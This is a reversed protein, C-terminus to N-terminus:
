MPNATSSSFQPKPFRQIPEPKHGLSFSGQQTCVLEFLVLGIGFSGEAIVELFSPMMFQGLFIEGLCNPNRVSNSKVTQGFNEARM